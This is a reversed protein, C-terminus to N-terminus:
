GKRALFALVQSGTLELVSELPFQDMINCQTDLFPRIRLFEPYGPTTFQVERDQELVHTALAVFKCDRTRFDNEALNVTFDAFGIFLQRDIDLFLALTADHLCEPFALALKAVHHGIAVAPNTQVVDNRRASEDTELCFEHGQSGPCAENVMHEVMVPGDLPATDSRSVVPCQDRVSGALRQAVCEIVQLIAPSKKDAGAVRDILPLDDTQM